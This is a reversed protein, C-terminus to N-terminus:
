TTKLYDRFGDSYEITGDPLVWVAEVGELSDIYRRSEEFPIVYMATSLADGLGSDKTLITLEAYHAAPMLTKPDIIHHYQKGNVTYYREYSGSSVVSLGSIKVQLIETQSSTKDPNQIGITWRKDGSSDAVQKEGIARVNGGVSLLLSTVGKEELYRAVQETAYGKAIAGVDLLMEPDQLYVTSAEEDIIVNDIDVHQAAEELLAMSPLEANEPDDLGAERYDHWIRLVAGFAINVAGGTAEYQEKGLKLMSIIRPDVKVPAIGANDNITKINGIGEYTNYIDYLQHYEELRSRVEEALAKFSEETDAYGVIVTVTDFLSLFEAQYRNVKIDGPPANKVACGSALLLVIGLFGSIIKKM